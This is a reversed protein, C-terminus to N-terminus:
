RQTKLFLADVEDANIRMRKCGGRNLRQGFCDYASSVNAQSFRTKVVHYM